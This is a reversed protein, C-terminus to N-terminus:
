SWGLEMEFVGAPRHQEWSLVLATGQYIREVGKESSSITEIPYYWVTFPQKSAHLTLTAGSQHRLRVESVKKAEGIADLPVTQEGIRLEQLPLFNFDVAFRYARWFNALVDYTVRLHDTELVVEKYLHCPKEELFDVTTMATKLRELKYDRSVLAIDYLEQATGQYCDHVPTELNYFHDLLSYRPHRDYHLYRAIGELAGAAEPAAMRGPPAGVAATKLRAHYSETRRTLTDLWNIERLKDDFEILTGGASPAIVAFFQKYDFVIENRGCADFDALKVGLNEGLLNDAKLIHRYAGQRLHPLYLGGSNGHWYVDNEQGKYLEVRVPAKKEEPKRSQRLKRSVFIMRKHLRNAEPYKALFNRFYGARLFTLDRPDSHMRDKVREYQRFREPTLVWEGLEENAANDLYVRGLPPNLDMFEALLTPQISAHNSLETWFQRLWGDEYIAFREPNEQHGQHDQHHFSREQEGQREQRRPPEKPERGPVGRGSSGAFRGGEEFFTALRAGRYQAQESLFELTEAVSRFPVLYRLRKSIPFVALTRGQDETIYYGFLDDERLGANRFHTDDVVVYEIGAQALTRVLNQEWVRETLWLGRPKVGFMRNLRDSFSTIQGLRDDEPLLTLIPEYLGSGLLEVQHSVVMAKLDDIYEPHHEQLWELLPGSVHFNAKVDKFEGLVDLFPRYAKQYNEEIVSDGHDIPQHNHIGFALNIM